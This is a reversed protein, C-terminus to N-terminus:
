RLEYDTLWLDYQGPKVKPKGDVFQYAPKKQWCVLEFLGGAKLPNRKFDAKKVKMVGTKGSELNYLRVKPSYKDDVDLVAYLSKAGDFTSLPMGYHAIEFSIQEEMSVDSEPLQKELERLADLRKEQTAQVHVKSFRSDGNRFAELLALQKGVSDFCDFYGMRILINIATADFAPEMELTHLVDTFCSFTHNRLEYLREAVRKGVHKVAHLADSITNRETDAFFDRNDQGFRCPAVRIGFGMQMEEKALAIRDKDGKQAYSKLLSTYYALPHHAKAWAGYLSDLAVCVAHASCFGYSTADEIIQWVKESIQTAKAATCNSDDALLHAAFGELFRSKLPLVKEPHKKGIAKIAAYSEPGTFSGYQLAKMVQEQFLIFSSRMDRTQILQDFVPINYDFHRRALFVPLMSKFAPRVAAVFSALETINQPRYQMVKERTKPQEVQNLGMTLGDKYMRWTETDGDTWELLQRVTPLPVGIRKYADHNM